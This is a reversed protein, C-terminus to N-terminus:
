KDTRLALSRKCPISSRKGQAVQNGMMQWFGASVGKVHNIGFCSFTVIVIGTGTNVFVGLGTNVGIISMDDGFGGLRLLLLVFSNWNGCVYISKAPVARPKAQKTANSRGRGITIALPPAIAAIM